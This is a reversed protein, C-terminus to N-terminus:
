QAAEEEASAAPPPSVTIDVNNFKCFANLVAVLSTMSQPLVRNDFTVVKQSLAEIADPTTISQMFTTADKIGSDAAAAASRLVIDIANVTLCSRDFRVGLAEFEEDSPRRFWAPTAPLAGRPEPAGPDVLPEPDPDAGNTARWVRLVAAMREPSAFSVNGDKDRLAQAEVDTDFGDLVCVITPVSASPAKTTIYDLLFKHAAAILGDPDDSLGFKKYDESTPINLWSPADTTAM